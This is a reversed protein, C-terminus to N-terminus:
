YYSSPKAIVKKLWVNHMLKAVNHMLKAEQTLFLVPDASQNFVQYPCLYCSILNYTGIYMHLNKKGKKFYIEKRIRIDVIYICVVLIM